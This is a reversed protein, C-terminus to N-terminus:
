DDERKAFEMLIDKRIKEAIENLNGQVCSSCVPFSKLFRGYSVKLLRVVREEEGCIKCIM